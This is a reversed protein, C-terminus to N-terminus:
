CSHATTTTCTATTFATRTLPLVPILVRQLQLQVPVSSARSRLHRMAFWTLSLKRQKRLYLCFSFYIYRKPKIKGSCVHSNSRRSFRRKKAPTRYFVVCVSSGGAAEGDVYALTQSVASRFSRASLDIYWCAQSTVFLM